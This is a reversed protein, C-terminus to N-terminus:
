QSPNDKYIKKYWEGGGDKFYYWKPLSNHKLSIQVTKLSYIKQKNSM